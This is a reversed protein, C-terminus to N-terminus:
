LMQILVAQGIDDIPIANKSVVVFGSFTVVTVEAAALAHM